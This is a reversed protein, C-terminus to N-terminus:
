AILEWTKDMEFHEALINDHHRSIVEIKLINPLYMLGEQDLVEEAM